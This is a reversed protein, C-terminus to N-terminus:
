FPTHGTDVKFTTKYIFIVTHLHEDWDMRNKHVIKTLLLKIVKNIFKAQGNGQPYYTTFSTRWFLFYITLIEIAESIFHTGQDNVLILPCGFRILIFEYIFQVITIVLNIKLTKTEVWKTTYDTAVLIYKNDHSCSM